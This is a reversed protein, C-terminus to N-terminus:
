TALRIEIAVAEFCDFEPQDWLPGSPHFKRLWDYILQQAEKGDAHTDEM